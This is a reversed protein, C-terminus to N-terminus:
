RGTSAESRQSRDAARALRPILESFLVSAVGTAITGFEGRVEAPASPKPDFSDHHSIGGGTYILIVSKARAAASRDAARLALYNPLSLQLGALTGLRLFTRRKM